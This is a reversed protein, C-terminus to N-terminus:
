FQHLQFYVIASIEIRLKNQEVNFPKFTDSNFQLEGTKKTFSHFKVGAVLNIMVFLQKV